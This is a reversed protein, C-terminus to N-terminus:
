PDVHQLFDNVVSMFWAPDSIFPAHGAGDLLALNAGPIHRALWEGAAVPCLGDAGGHVVLTPCAIRPAVDRLDEDRLLDLGAALARTDPPNREAALRRLEGLVRREAVDGKAQLAAFRRLTAEPNARLGDGFAALTAAPMGHPWAADARFAPTSAVLVLARVRAPFLAAWAQAILGGMSWACLILPAAHSDALQRALPEARYPRCDAQAGYGPLDLLHLGRRAGLGAVPRWVGAHTGWGHLLALPLREASPM